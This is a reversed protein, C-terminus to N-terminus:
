GRKNNKNIRDNEKIIATLTFVLTFCGIIWSIFVFIWNGVTNTILVTAIMALVGLIGIITWIIRQRRYNPVKKM